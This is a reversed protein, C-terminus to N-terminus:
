GGQEPPSQVGRLRRNLPYLLRMEKSPPNLPWPMHLQGNVVMQQQPKFTNSNYKWKEV